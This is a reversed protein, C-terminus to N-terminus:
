PHNEDDWSQATEGIFGPLRAHRTQRVMAACGGGIWRLGVAGLTRKLVQRGDLGHEVAFVRRKLSCGLGGRGGKAMGWASSVFDARASKAQRGFAGLIWETETGTRWAFPPGM